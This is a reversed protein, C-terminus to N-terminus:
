TEVSGQAVPGLRPINREIHLVEEILFVNARRVAPKGDPGAAWPIERQTQPLPKSGPGPGASPNEAAGKAPAASAGVHGADFEWMGGVKGLRLKVIYSEEEKRVEFFRRVGEAAGACCDGLDALDTKRM